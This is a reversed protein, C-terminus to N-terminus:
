PRWHALSKIIALLEQEYINYNQEMPTFMASYYAIPHTRPKAHKRLSPPNKGRQSLVAGVGYASTDTQLYFKEEFNPQTLVLSCCM